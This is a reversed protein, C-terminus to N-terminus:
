RSQVELTVRSFNVGGRNDHVVAWVKLPGPAKPARLSARYESNWGSTADNLLRVDSVGGRDVYYNVWMQETLTTGFLKTTVDDLEVISSDLEPQVEIKPCGPEGDEACAQICRPNGEASCDVAVDPASMCDVGTCDAAVEQGAISFTEGIAPNTNQAGEFAYVSSYGVVFDDSGLPQQDNEDLCRVPLGTASGDAEAVFDLRGACAVFFVIYLGYRAQGPLVPGGRGSIIEDPLKIRFSDGMAFPLPEGVSLKEAFQAFCGYFLDGPPNICGGIFARQVARGRDPSGDHWLLNLDVEEGPDAYPRSKQVGLVRLSKVESPPDFEAGCGPAALLALGTALWLEARSKVWPTPKM